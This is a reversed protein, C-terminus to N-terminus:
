GCQTEAMAERTIALIAAQDEERMDPYIPFCVMRDALATAVPAADLIACEPPVIRHLAPRYYRRLELRGEHREVISKEIFLGLGM